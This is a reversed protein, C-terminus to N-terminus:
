SQVSNHLTKICLVVCSMDAVGDAGSMSIGCISLTNGSVFWEYCSNPMNLCHGLSSWYLTPAM